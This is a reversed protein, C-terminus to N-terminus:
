LCAGGGGPKSKSKTIETLVENSDQWTWQFLQLENWSEMTHCHRISDIIEMNTPMLEPGLKKNKYVICGYVNMHKTLIDKFVRAKIGTPCLRLFPTALYINNINRLELLAEHIGKAIFAKKQSLFFWTAKRIQPIANKDVDYCSCFIYNFFIFVVHYTFFILLRVIYKAFINLSIPSFFLAYLSNSVLYILVHWPRSNSPM